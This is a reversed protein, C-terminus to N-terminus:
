PRPTVFEDSYHNLVTGDAMLAIRNVATNKESLQEMGKMWFDHEKLLQPLYKVLINDSKEESLLKVMSAYFPPQSRGLFYSRNGNPIYGFKDILYSFNDVMNQIMEIRGSVQLGLMTFYSDWYFIERFRGGPVIYPHPLPILSNNGEEPQRTLENWLMEIHEIIPRDKVSVYETSYTKPLIFNENVFASLNFGPQRKKEEYQQQIFLLNSRPTCDVFTKGDPFINKMQVQEFLEGLLFIDEL